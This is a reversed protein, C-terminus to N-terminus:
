LVLREYLPEDDSDDDTGVVGIRPISGPAAEEGGPPPLPQDGLPNYVPSSPEGPPLTIQTSTLTAHSTRRVRTKLTGMGPASQRIPTTASGLSLQQSFSSSFSGVSGRSTKPTASVSACENAGFAAIDDFTNGATLAATPHLHSASDQPSSRQLFNSVTSLRKPTAQDQEDDTDAHGASDALWARTTWKGDHAGLSLDSPRRPTVGNTANGPSVGPGSVTSSTTSYNTISSHTSSSHYLYRVDHDESTLSASDDQLDSSSGSQVMGGPGTGPPKRSMTNAPSRSTISLTQAMEMLRQADKVSACSFVHCVVLFPIPDPSVNAESSSSLTSSASVNSMRSKPGQRPTASGEKNAASTMPHRELFCFLHGVFLSIVLRTGPVSCYQRTDKDGGDNRGGSAQGEVIGAHQITASKRAAISGGANASGSLMKGRRRGLTSTNYSITLQQTRASSAVVLHAEAGSGQQEVDISVLVPEADAPRQNFQRKARDMVVKKLSQSSQNEPKSRYLMRTLDSPLYYYGVYEAYVM